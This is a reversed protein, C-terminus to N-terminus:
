LIAIIGIAGCFQLDFLGSLYICVIIQIVSEKLFGLLVSGFSQALVVAPMTSCLAGTCAHIQDVLQSEIM